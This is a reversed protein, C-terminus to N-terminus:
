DAKPFEVRATEGAASVEVSASGTGAGRGLFKLVVAFGNSADLKKVGQGGLEWARGESESANDGSFELDVKGDASARWLIESNAPVGGVDFFVKSRAMLAASGSLIADKDQLDGTRGDRITVVTLNLAM